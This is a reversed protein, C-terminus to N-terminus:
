HAIVEFETRRNLERGEIEDDNSAIPKEEGFGKAILRNQNIGKSVLYEVVADVRMQSLNKNYEPKGINDTHGNLQIKIKPNENMLKVIKQLEVNSAPKIQAMNFDFYINRLVTKFGTELRNLTITANYDLVGEKLQIKKSNYMYGVTTVSITYVKNTGVDPVEFNFSGDSSTNFVSVLKGKSDLLQVKASLTPIGKFDKVIGGFHTPQLIRKTNEEKTEPNEKTDVITNSKNSSLLINKPDKVEKPEPQKSVKLVTSKSSTALISTDIKEKIIPIDVVYIDFDGVGHDRISSYYGRAGGASVVYYIDDDATNIPYGLNIASSWKNTTSDFTSKFIDYGGMGKLGSSSFYLTRSDEDYYPSEENLITNIEDGLIQPTQWRGKEDAKSVYIDLGGKGPRNSSFFLLKKDKSICVSPEYSSSNIKNGISEPKSWNGKSDKKSIFIDGGNDEKFIFLENGDASLGICGEHFETNIPIGLNKPRAWEDGIKTTVYIDEFFENDRDKKSGTSGQRRSTFYMVSEDPTIVPAFEKYDTNISEGLNHLQYNVPNAVLEKGVACEEIKKEIKKIALEKSNKPDKVKGSILDNKYKEYYEAALDFQNGLHYGKGILLLIDEQINEDLEYAKLLFSVSREKNVTELYCRGAMLNARKNNRNMNVAQLYVELADKRDGFAYMEDALKVAEEDQAKALLVSLLFILFVLLKRIVM